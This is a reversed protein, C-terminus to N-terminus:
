PFLIAASAPALTSVQPGTFGVTGGDLVGYGSLLMSHTYSTTPVPVSSSPNPNVVIACNAVFQGQYYCAGFERMYAGGPELYGSVSSATTAPNEPVFATEPMVPFGSPTKLADQYMAYAPDYSLLFSAYAYTRLATEASADGSMRAYDWFVKHMEVLGIEANEVNQWSTGTQAVDGSPNNAYCEECMAGLVNSPQALDIANQPNPAGGLANVWMPVGLSAHVSNVAADWGSEDYNCPLTIGYVGGTDDAFLADYNPAYENLRYNVVVQAHGLAASTRPDAEYGGGYSSDYIANGSCDAAEAAAHTGGPKLDTYGVSPNDSSYNRWYNTYVQVKIGASRLQAAHAEDTMSWNVWPSMSSVAVTTPTGAYGYIYAFNQVHTMSIPGPTPTAIAPPPTPPQAVSVQTATYGTSATGLATVSVSSGVSLTAGFIVTSSTLAVPVNGSGTNLLFGYPESQAVTGSVTTSTFAASALSVSIATLSSCRTGKGTIVAYQGAKPSGDFYNTSSNLYVYMSGCGSGANVTLRTSSVYSVTATQVLVGTPLPVAPGLSASPSPTATVPVPSPSPSPSAVIQKVSTATINGSSLTGTGVVDVNEGVFPAPGTVVTSSPTYIHLYGVGKGGQMQFGGTIFATVAGTVEINNGNVSVIGQPTPGAGPAAPISGGGGGGGCATLAFVFLFGLTVKLRLSLASFM